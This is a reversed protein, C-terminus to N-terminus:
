KRSYQDCVDHVSTIPIMIKGSPIITTTVVSHKQSCFWENKKLIALNPSQIDAYIIWPMYAILVTLPWAIVLTFIAIGIENNKWLLYVGYLPILVCGASFMAGILFCFYILFNM